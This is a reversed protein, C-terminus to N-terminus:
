TLKKTTYSLTEVETKQLLIDLKGLVIQQLSEKKRNIIKADKDFIMQGCMFPFIELIRQKVRNSEKDKCWYWM